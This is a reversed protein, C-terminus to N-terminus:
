CRHAPCTPGRILRAALLWRPSRRSCSSPARRVARPLRMPLWPRGVQGRRGATTTSTPLCGPQQAARCISSTAEAIRSRQRYPSCIRNTARRRRGPSRDPCEMPDRSPQCTRRTRRMRARASRASSSNCCQSRQRSLASVPSRDVALGDSRARSSRSSPCEIRAIATMSVVSPTSGGLPPLAMALAM